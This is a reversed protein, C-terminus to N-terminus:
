WREHAKCTVLHPRGSEAGCDHCHNDRREPDTTWAPKGFRLRCMEWHTLRRWDGQWEVEADPGHGVEIWGEFAWLGAGPPDPLEHDAIDWGGCGEQLERLFEGEAWLIPGEASVKIDQEGLQKGIRVFAIIASPGELSM